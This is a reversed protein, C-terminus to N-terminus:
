MQRYAYPVDEQVSALSQVAQHAPAM